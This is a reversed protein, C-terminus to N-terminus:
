VGRVNMASRWRGGGSGVGDAAWVSDAAGDLSVAGGGAVAHGSVGRVGGITEGTTDSLSYRSTLWDNELLEALADHTVEQLAIVDAKAMWLRHMLAEHRERRCLEDFWINWTAVRFTTM